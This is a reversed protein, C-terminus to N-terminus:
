NWKTQQEQMPLTLELWNVAQMLRAAIMPYDDSLEACALRLELPTVIFVPALKIRPHTTM